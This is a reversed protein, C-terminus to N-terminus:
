GSNLTPLSVISILLPLTSISDPLSHSFSISLCFSVFLPFCSFLNLCCLFMSSFYLCTSSASFFSLSVPFLRSEDSLPIDLGLEVIRSELRAVYFHPPTKIQESINEMAHRNWRNGASVLGTKVLELCM